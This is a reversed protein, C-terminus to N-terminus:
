RRGPRCCSSPVSRCRRSSARAARGARLRGLRRRGAGRHPRPCPRMTRSVGADLAVTDHTVEVRLAHEVERIRITVRADDGAAHRLTSRPVAGSTCPRRSTRRTAGSARRTWGRPAASRTPFAGRRSCRPYIENALAQVRELAGRVDRGIEDLLAIAAPLDAGALQRVLQLRVSVAILDQQVGDHLAREITRREGDAAACPTRVGRAARRRHELAGYMGGRGLEGPSVPRM